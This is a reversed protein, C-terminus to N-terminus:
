HLKKLGNFQSQPASIPINMIITDIDHIGIVQSAGTDKLSGALFYM